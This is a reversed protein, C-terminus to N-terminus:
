PRNRPAPQVPPLPQVVPAPPREFVAKAMLDWAKNVVFAGVAVLIALVVGAAYIKHTVGSLTGEFKDLKSDVKEGARELKGDVHERVREIAQATKANEVALQQVSAEIRGLAQQIDGLQKWVFPSYDGGGQGSPTTEPSQPTVERPPRATPPTANM